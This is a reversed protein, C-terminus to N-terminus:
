LLVGGIKCNQKTDGWLLVLAPSPNAPSSSRSIDTSPDPLQARCDGPVRHWAVTCLREGTGGTSPPSRPRLELTSIGGTEWDQRIHGPHHPTVSLAVAPMPVDLKQGWGQLVSLLLGAWGSPHM